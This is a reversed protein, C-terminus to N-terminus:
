KIYKILSLFFLLILIIIKIIIKKLFFQIFIYNKTYKYFEEIIKYNIILNSFSRNYIYYLPTNDFLKLINIFEESSNIFIFFLNEGKLFKFNPMKFLIKIYLMKLNISIINLNLFLNKFKLFKNKNIIIIYKNNLFLNNIKLKNYNIDIINLNVKNRYFFVSM